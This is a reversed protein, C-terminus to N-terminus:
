DYPSSRRAHAFKPVAADDVCFSVSGNRNMNTTARQGSRDPRSRRKRLRAEEVKCDVALEAAAIEDLYSYALQHAAAPNSSSCDDPLLLGAPGNPELQQLWCSAGQNLPQLLSSSCQVAKYELDIREASFALKERLAQFLRAHFDIVVRILADGVLEEAQTRRLSGPRRRFRDAGGELLLKAM